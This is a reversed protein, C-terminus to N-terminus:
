DGTWINISTDFKWEDVSYLRWGLIDYSDDRIALTVYLAKIDSIPSFFYTTVANLTDDWRTNIEVGRISAPTTEATLLEFMVSEALAEAEYYGSVLQVRADVLARDNGAVVFTILSFITLCLVAFVLVISASGVGIGGNGM